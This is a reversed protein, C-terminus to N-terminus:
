STMQVIALGAASTNRRVFKANPIQTTYTADQVASVQGCTANAENPDYYVDDATGLAVASACYVIGIFMEMIEGSEGNRLTLSPELAGAADGQTVNQKPSMLFGGNAGTGGARVIEDETPVRTFYRGFVNNAANLSEIIMGQGREPGDAIIEGNYGFTQERRVEQQFTPPAM